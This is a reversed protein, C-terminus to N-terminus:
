LIQCVENTELATNCYANSILASIKLLMQSIEATKVHRCYDDHIRIVVSEEHSTSAIVTTQDM